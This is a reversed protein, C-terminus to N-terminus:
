YDQQQQFSEKNADLSGDLDSLKMLGNPVLIEDMLPNDSRADGLMERKENPTYMYAGNLATTLTARDEQLERYAEMGYSIYIASGKYAPSERLKRNYSQERDNLLPLACRSCLQKEGEASNNYTKGEPDNQMASPVGYANQVRRSDVYDSALLEMDKPSLGWQSFGVKYGSVVTTGYGDSGRRQVKRYENQIANKQEIALTESKLREDDLYGVGIAGGNEYSRISATTSSNNRQIRRLLAKMPSMGQLHSGRGDWDPNFYYEHLIQGLQYETLEGCALEYLLPKSIPGMSAIINMYQPPLVQMSIPKNKNMGGVAFDWLEYYDGTVLKYTWLGSHHKALTSESNPYQLLENLKGDGDFPKLAKHHLEKMAQLAGPAKMNKRIAELEKLAQENVVKYVSWPAIVAKDVIIKVTSYVIDNYDYGKNIYTEKDHKYGVFTSNMVSQVLVNGADSNTGSPMGVMSAAMKETHVPVIENGKIDLLTAPEPNGTALSNSVEHNDMGDNKVKSFSLEYGLLKM